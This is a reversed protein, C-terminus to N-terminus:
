YINFQSHMLQSNNSQSFTLINTAPRTCFVWQKYSALMDIPMLYSLFSSADVAVLRRAIKM